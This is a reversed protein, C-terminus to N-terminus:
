QLVEQLLKRARHLQAKVTGVAVGLEEAIEAQPWGEVDHLVFVIRARPPLTAIAEAVDLRTGPAVSEHPVEMAELNDTPFVRQLRRNEARLEGLVTNVAIRHLWSGFASESRFSSLKHWATVFARGAMEEAQTPNATMRLCVAYVRGVHGRYLQEFAHMDGGQAQCVLRADADFPETVVAIPIPFEQANLM